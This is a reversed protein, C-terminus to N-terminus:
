AGSGYDSVTIIYDPTSSLGARGRLEDGTNTFTRKNRAGQERMDSWTRKKYTM